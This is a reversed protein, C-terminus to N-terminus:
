HRRILLLTQDDLQRGHARAAAVLREAIDRLPRGARELLLVKLADLGLERDQADFVEILGDTILALLDGQQADITSSAFRQAEFMAIPIQPTTLEDVAGARVRLIPLHGAVAFELSDSGRSGIGAVTVFMNGSKLPFLERNIDTMLEGLTGGHPLRMRLASKFMGMVVGSSVGHGSVDAVYGFWGDRGTVVDVLDGGVDGSPHSFGLFEYEGIRRDIPPVLVQHIQHALDMEARVLLYRRATGNIFMLFFTYGVFMQLVVLVGDVHLHSVSVPSPLPAPASRRALAYWALHVAIAGALLRYNRRLSGFAYGLAIAGSLMSNLVLESTPTVGGNLLDTVPALVSFIAFIAIALPVTSRAPLERVLPHLYRPRLSSWLANHAM